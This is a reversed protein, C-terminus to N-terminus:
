GEKAVSSAPLSHLYSPISHRPVSRQFAVAFCSCQPQCHSAARRTRLAWSFVVLLLLFLALLFFSPKLHFAISRCSRVALSPRAGAQGPRAHCPVGARSTAKASPRRVPRSSSTSDFHHGALVRRRREPRGYLLSPSQRQCGWGPEWVRDPQSKATQMHCAFFFRHSIPSFRERTENKVSALLSITLLVRATSRSVRRSQWEGSSHKTLGSAFQKFSFCAQM